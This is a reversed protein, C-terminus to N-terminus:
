FDGKTDFTRNRFALPHSLCTPPTHWVTAESRRSMMTM